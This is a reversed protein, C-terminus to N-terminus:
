THLTATAMSMDIGCESSPLCQSCEYPLWTCSLLSADTARRRCHWKMKPTAARGHVIAKLLAGIIVTRGHQMM